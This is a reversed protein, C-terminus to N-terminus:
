YTSPSSISSSLLLFHYRCHPAVKLKSTDVTFKIGDVPVNWNESGAHGHLYPRRDSCRSLDTPSIFHYSSLYCVRSWAYFHLSTLMGFNPQDMHINLSQSQDIYCGRDAAMDVLTRQKIEWVTKYILKLEDPIEPIKQASGDEYIIQNKLPSWLGMGTLDHLLHKNVVVFEVDAAATFTPLTYSLANMIELFKAVLLSNWVENKEIMVQLAVWDWQNSPTVGWMDPQLTGKSIPSGEYTEYLAKAALDSSAKLAHNTADLYNVEPSDFAMGILIFTDALGQAKKNLYNVFIPFLLSVNDNGHKDIILIGANIMRGRVDVNPDAHFALWISTAVEINEPISHGALASVCKVANLCAVRVHVYKAYVGSLAPAVEAASLGLCLENLSPGISAQYAPVVGLVHYLVRPLPLVPDLHLFIIQLVDEHLRTKKSSMLIREMILNENAEESTSPFLAWLVNADETRIVRLATAIELAWNSLPSAVCNSLKVLAEYAVDGVIPSCLLPDILKFLVIKTEDLERQIKLLKDAEAPDQNLMSFASRVPYPDGM